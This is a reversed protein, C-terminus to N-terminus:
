TITGMRQAYYTFLACRVLCERAERDTFKDLTDCIERATRATIEKARALDEGSGIPIIQATM